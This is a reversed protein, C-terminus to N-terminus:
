NLVVFVGNDGSDTKDLYFRIDSCVSSSRRVPDLVNSFSPCFEEGTVLIVHWETNGKIISVVMAQNPKLMYEYGPKLYQPTDAVTTPHLAFVPHMPLLLLLLATSLRTKM